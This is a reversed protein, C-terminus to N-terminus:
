LGYHNRVIRKIGRVTNRHMKFAEEASDSKQGVIEVLSTGPFVLTEWTGCANVTSIRFEMGNVVRTDVTDEFFFDDVPIVNASQDDQLGTMTDLFNM